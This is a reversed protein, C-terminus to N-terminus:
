LRIAPPKLEVRRVVSLEVEVLATIPRIKWFSDPLQSRKREDLISLLTSAQSNSLYHYDLYPGEGEITVEPVYYTQKKEPM